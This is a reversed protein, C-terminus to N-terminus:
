HRHGMGGSFAGNTSGSSFTLGRPSDLDSHYDGPDSRGYDGMQAASFGSPPLSFM